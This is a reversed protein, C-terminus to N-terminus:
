RVGGCKLQYMSICNGAMVPIVDTIKLRKNVVTPSIFNSQYVTLWSNDATPEVVVGLVDRVSDVHIFVEVVSTAVMMSTKSMENFTSPPTIDINDFTKLMPTPDASFGNGIATPLSIEVKGTGGFTHILKKSVKYALKDLKGLGM